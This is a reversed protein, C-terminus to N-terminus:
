LAFWGSAHVTFNIAGGNPTIPMGTMGTDYYVILPDATPTTPTDNWLAVISVQNGATVSTWSFDATDFLGDVITPSTLQASDAVTTGLDSKATHAGSYTYTGGTDTGSKRVLSAKILDTDMDHIKNLLAEKYKPYLANAM